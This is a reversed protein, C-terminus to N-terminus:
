NSEFYHRPNDVLMTKIAQESVGAKKMSPIFDEIIYTYRRKKLYEPSRPARSVPGHMCGVNDHSLVIQNAYGLAVLGALTGLKEEDTSHMEFGIRDFGLFAKRKLMKLHYAINPNDSCHGIIVHQPNVGESEFIELQEPGMTGETTHTTIPAGTAKSARAAAQLAKKENDTVKGSSTACKIVGAKIKRAGIGQTIEKTYIEALEDATRIRFYTPYGAFSGTEHYIGTSCIINIGSKEAVDAMFNVNRGIEMPIPDIITTIGAAKLRKMEGIAQLLENEYDFHATSDYEVGMASAILHEHTLTAGLDESSIPGLVTNVRTTPM